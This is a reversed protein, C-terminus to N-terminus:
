VLSCVCVCVTACVCVCVLTCMRKGVAVDAKYFRGSYSVRCRDGQKLELIDVDDPPIVAKSNVVDLM